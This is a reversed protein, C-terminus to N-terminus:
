FILPFSPFNASNFNLFANLERIKFFIAKGSERNDTYSKTIGLCSITNM